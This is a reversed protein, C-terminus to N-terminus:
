PLQQSTTREREAYRIAMPVMIKAMGRAIKEEQPNGNHQLAKIENKLTFIEESTHRVEHWKIAIKLLETIAAFTLGNITRTVPTFKGNDLHHMGIDSLRIYENGNEDKEKTLNRFEGRTGSIKQEIKRRRKESVIKSAELAAIQISTKIADVVIEGGLPDLGLGDEDRLEKGVKVFKILQKIRTIGDEPDLLDVYRLKKFDMEPDYPTILVVEENRVPKGPEIIPVNTLVKTPITPLEKRKAAELCRSIFPRRDSPDPYENMLARKLMNSYKEIFSIPQPSEMKTAWSDGFLHYLKAVEGNPIGQENLLRYSHTEAGTGIREGLKLPGKHSM